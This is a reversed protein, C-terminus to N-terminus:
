TKGFKSQRMPVETVPGEPFRRRKMGEEKWQLSSPMFINGAKSLMDPPSRQKWLRRILASESGYSNTPSSLASQSSYEYASTDPAGDPVPPVGSTTGRNIAASGSVLRFDNASQQCLWPQNHQRFQEFVNSRLLEINHCQYRHQEHQSRYNCRFGDAWQCCVMGKAADNSINNKINATKITTPWYSKHAPNAQLARALSHTTISTLIQQQEETFISLIAGIRITYSTEDYPLVRRQQSMSEM